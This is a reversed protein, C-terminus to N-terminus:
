PGIRRLLSLPAATLAHSAFPDLDRDVVLAADEHDRDGGLEGVHVRLRQAHVLRAAQDLRLARRLVGAEVRLAVDLPQAVDLPEGGLRAEVQGPDLDDELHFGLDLPHSGLQLPHAAVRGLEFPRIDLSPSQHLGVPERDLGLFRDGCRLREGRLPAVGLDGGGVQQHRQHALVVAQDHRDQLLQAGVDVRDGGARHLRHLPQRLQGLRGLDTGGRGEDLDELLGLALHRLEAVLVDRGLVDQEREGVLAGADGVDEGVAARQFLRHGLHAARVLDGRGGRPCRRLRQLFEAAVQGGLGLGALEVRHDAAVLLDAAHDLDERAAGLVVRHQDAVGADALRRDDLPQRLPDDVAVHRLAQAVPAHDREVDARQQGAGFVPALELLPQFRDEGLDLLGGPWITRKRSSSCM